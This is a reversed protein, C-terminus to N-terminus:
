LSLFRMRSDILQKSKFQGALLASPGSADIVYRCAINGVKADDGRRDLYSVKLLDSGLEAEQVAVQQFVLVGLSEAHKLLLQDFIDREVHLGPRTFGFESFANPSIKDNWVTIGGAKAVFGEKELLPSM